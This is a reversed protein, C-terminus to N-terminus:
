VHIAHCAVSLSTGDECRGPCQEFFWDKSPCSPSSTLPLLFGGESCTGLGTDSPDRCWGCEPHDHCKDCTIYSECPEIPPLVSIHLILTCTHTCTDDGYKMSENWMELGM